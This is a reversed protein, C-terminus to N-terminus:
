TQTCGPRHDAIGRRRAGAYRDAAEQAKGETLGRWWAELERNMADAIKGARAGRPDNRVANKTSHKIAGRKDLVAFELPVRRYFQWHGNRKTLYEPM